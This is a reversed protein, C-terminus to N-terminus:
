VLSRYLVAFERGLRAVSYQSVVRARAALALRHLLARDRALRELADALARSDRAPVFLGHIQDQV